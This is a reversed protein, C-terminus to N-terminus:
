NKLGYCKIKLTSVGSLYQKDLPQLYLGQSRCVTWWNSNISMRKFRQVFNLIVITDM